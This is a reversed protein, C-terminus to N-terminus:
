LLAFRAWNTHTQRNQKRRHLTPWTKHSINSFTDKEDTSIEDCNHNTQALQFCSVTSRHGDGEGTKKRRHGTDQGSRYM